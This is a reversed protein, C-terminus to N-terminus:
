GTASKRSRTPLRRVTDYTLRVSRFTRCCSCWLLVIFLKIAIVLAGFVFYKHFSRHWYCCSSLCLPLSFLMNTRSFIAAASAEPWVCPWPCPRFRPLLHFMYVGGFGFPGCAPVSYALASCLIFIFFLFLGFSFFRPTCGLMKVAFSIRPFCIENALTPRQLRVVFMVHVDKANAPLLGGYLSSNKSVITGTVRALRRLSILNTHARKPPNPTRSFGSLFHV